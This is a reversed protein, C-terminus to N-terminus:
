DTPASDGGGNDDSGTDAAGSDNTDPEASDTGTATGHAAAASSAGTHDVYRATYATRLQAQAAQADDASPYPGVQVRYWTQGNIRTPFIHSTYGLGLLRSAMRNAAVRDMAADIVINYGRGHRGPNPPSASAAGEESGTDAEDSSASDAPASSHPSASSDDDPEEAAPASPYKRPVSAVTPPPPKHVQAPKPLAAPPINESVATARPPPKPASAAAAGTPAPPPAQVAPAAAQPPPAAPAGAPMPYVSALQSQGQESQAMERGSIMGLFFVAASLGLLGILVLFGGGPGIEFRMRKSVNTAGGQKV